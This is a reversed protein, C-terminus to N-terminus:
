DQCVPCYFTGRGGITIRKIDSKCKYCSEGKRGYVYFHDSFTGKQGHGDRYNSFTSGRCEIAKALVKKINNYLLKIQKESLECAIKDPMIKSLFLAECAYINGIGAIFRQDLLLPKIKAKKKLIIEKFDNLRFEESLPEPGMTKVVRLGTWDEVLILHGLTRQDNYCLFRGDSLEFLVRAKPDAQGYVLQGTMRLHVALYISKGNESVLEIVLLKGRRIIGKILRNTIGKKFLTM